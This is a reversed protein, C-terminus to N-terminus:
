VNIYLIMKNETPILILYIKIIPIGWEKLIHNRAKLRLALPKNHINHKFEIQKGDLLYIICNLNLNNITNM